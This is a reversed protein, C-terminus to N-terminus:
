RLLNKLDPFTKRNSHSMTEVMIQGSERLEVLRHFFHLLVAHAPSSSSMAPLLQWKNLALQATQAHLNEVDSLRRETIALLIENIKGTPDGSELTALMAPSSCLDKVKDWDQSKWGCELMLAINGTSSAFDSVAELQCTERQLDVWQNEWLDM